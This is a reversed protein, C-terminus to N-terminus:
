AKWPHATWPSSPDGAVLGAKAGSSGGHVAAIRPPTINWSFDVGITGLSDERVEVTLLQASAHGGPAVVLDTAPMSYRFSDMQCSVNVSGAPAPDILVHGTPDPRATTTPDWNTLGQEGGAAM